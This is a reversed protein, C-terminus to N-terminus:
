SSTCCPQFILWAQRRREGRRHQVACPTDCYCKCPQHLKSRRPSRRCCPRPVDHLKIVHPQVQLLQHLSTGTTTSADDRPKCRAREPSTPLHVRGPGYTCAHGTRAHVSARRPRTQMKVNSADQHLVQMKLNKDQRGRECSLRWSWTAPMDSVPM